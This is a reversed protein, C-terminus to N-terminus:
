PAAHGSAATLSGDLPVRMERQLPEANVRCISLVGAVVMETFTEVHRPPADMSGVTVQWSAAAGSGGGRGGGGSGGSGGLGGGRGVLTLTHAM